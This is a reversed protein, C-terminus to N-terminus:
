AAASTCQEEYELEDKAFCVLAKEAYQWNNTQSAQFITHIIVLSPNAPDGMILSPLSDFYHGTCFPLFLSFLSAMLVMM